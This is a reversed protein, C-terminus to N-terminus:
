LQRAQLVELNRSVLDEEILGAAMRCEKLAQEMFADTFRETPGIVTISAIVGRDAGFVPVALARVGREMEGDCLAYGQKRAEALHTILQDRDVITRDTYRELPSISMVKDMKAKPLCALLIKAAATCNFPMRRGVEVLYRLGHSGDVKAICLAEDVNLVCIYVTEGLSRALSSLHPEAIARLHNQSLLSVSLKLIGLGLKYKKTQDDQAVMRYEALARLIRHVTSRPLGQSDGIEAVGLGEPNNSLSDLIAMVRDVGQM